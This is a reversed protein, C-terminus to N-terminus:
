APALEMPVLEGGALEFTRPDIPQDADAADAVFATFQGLFEPDEPRLAAAVLLDRHPVGVLVRAGENLEASLYARVEPLLIRAADGGAGSDSALLRRGGSLEDTWPADKSWTRLNEFATTRIVDPEINWGLLHDANVLIDFGSTRLVYAVTLGAPGPDTLPEAHTHDAELALQERDISAMPTGSAGAPRLVVHLISAAASWDHEPASSALHPDYGTGTDREDTM